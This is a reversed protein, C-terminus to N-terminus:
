NEFKHVAGGPVECRTREQVDSVSGAAGCVGAPDLMRLSRAVEASDDPKLWDRFIRADHRSSFTFEYQVHKLIGRGCDSFAGIRGTSHTMAGSLKITDSDAKTGPEMQRSTLLRLLMSTTEYFHEDAAPSWRRSSAVASEQNVYGPLIRLQWRVTFVQNCVAVAAARVNSRSAMRASTNAGMSMGEPASTVLPPAVPKPSDTQQTDPTAAPVGPFPDPSSQAGVTAPAAPTEAPAPSSGPACFRQVHTPEAPKVKAGCIMPDYWLLPQILNQGDRATVWDMFGDAASGSEFLATFKAVQWRRPALLCGTLTTALKCRRVAAGDHRRKRRTQYVIRCVSTAITSEEEM